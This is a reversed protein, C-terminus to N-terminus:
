AAARDAVAGHRRANALVARALDIHGVEQRFVGPTVCNLRDDAVTLVAGAGGLGPMQAVAEALGAGRTSRHFASFLLAFREEGFENKVQNAYCLLRM